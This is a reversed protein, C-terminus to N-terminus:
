PRFAVRWTRDEVALVAVVQDEVVLEVAVLLSRELEVPAQARSAEVKPQLSVLYTEALFVEVM